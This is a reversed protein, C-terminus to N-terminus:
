AQDVIELTREALMAAAADDIVYPPMFYITNGIPRLLVERKLGEAFCWRAFDNRTSDVDFAWIMGLHRFHRVQPHRALPEFM